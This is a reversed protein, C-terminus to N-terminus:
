TKREFKYIREYHNKTYMPIVKFAELVPMRSTNGEQIVMDLYELPFRLCYGCGGRAIKCPTTVVEFTFGKRELINYIAFAYNGSYFIALGDM